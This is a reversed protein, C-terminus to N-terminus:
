LFSVRYGNYLLPSPPGWPRDPLYPFDRGLLTEFEPGDLGCCTAIGVSSDRGGLKVQFCFLSVHMRLLNLM